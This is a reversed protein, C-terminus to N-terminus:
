LRGGIIDMYSIHIDDEAVMNGFVLILIKTLSWREYNVAVVTLALLKFNIIKAMNKVQRLRGSSLYYLPFQSPDSAQPFLVFSTVGLNISSYDIEKTKNGGLRPAV